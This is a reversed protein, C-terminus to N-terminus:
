KSAGDLLAAELVPLVSDCARRVRRFTEYLERAREADMSTLASASGEFNGDSDLFRDIARATKTLEPLRPRGGRPSSAPRHEGAESELEAVTWRNREASALLQRQAEHPLGLVARMHSSSVHKWQEAGGLRQCLEFTAVCRYLAGPSMPLDPSRALQAFTEDQTGRARWANVDGGYLRDVILKGVSLAFRRTATRCIRHLEFLVHDVTTVRRLGV